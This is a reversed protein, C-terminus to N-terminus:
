VGIITLFGLSSLMVITNLVSHIAIAEILQGRKTVLFSTVTGFLFGAIMAQNEAQYAMLHWVGFLAASVIILLIGSMKLEKALFPMVSGRFFLEETIPVLLGIIFLTMYPSMPKDMIAFMKQFTEYKLGPAVSGIMGSILYIFVFAIILSIGLIRAINEKGKIIPYVFGSQEKNWYFYVMAIYILGLVTNMNVSIYLWIISVGILILLDKKATIM